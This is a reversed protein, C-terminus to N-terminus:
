AKQLHGDRGTNRTDISAVQIEVEATSAALDNPDYTISGTYDTFEGKTTSVMMHKVAFGITSHAKDVEYVEASASSVFVTAVVAAFVFGSLKKVLSSM